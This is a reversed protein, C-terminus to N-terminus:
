QTLICFLFHTMQQVIYKNEVFMYVKNIIKQGSDMSDCLTSCSQAVLVKVVLIDARCLCPNKDAKNM